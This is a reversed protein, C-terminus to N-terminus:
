GDVGLYELMKEAAAQEAKRRSGGKGQVAADLADSRCSVMFEQNHAKGSVELLTYVPLPFRRSQLLM